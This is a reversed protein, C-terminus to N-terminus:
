FPKGPKEGATFNSLILGVNTQCLVMPLGCSIAAQGLQNYNVKSKKLVSTILLTEETQGSSSCISLRSSLFQKLRTFSRRGVSYKNSNSAASLHM